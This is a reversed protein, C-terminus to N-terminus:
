MGIWYSNRNTHKDDLENNGEREKHLFEKRDMRKDGKSIEIGSRDEKVQSCFSTM